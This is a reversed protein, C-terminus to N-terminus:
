GRRRLRYWQPSTRNMPWGLGATEAPRVDLMEWDPFAAEVEAQSVGGIRSRLRTVGFALMLLTAGPEALATVGRGEARRQEPGFGQFCGIDIFFGFTGLGSAELDTVDGVVYTVGEEAKSRAAEIAAPVYDVGVAEWGRRALEPTFQGRGCGLDLARGLPRSRDAEERDLLAAISDGAAKGYREWPTMGFRYMRAYNTM